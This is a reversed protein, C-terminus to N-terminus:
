LCLAEFFTKWKPDRLDKEGTSEDSVSLLLRGISAPKGVRLKQEELNFRM